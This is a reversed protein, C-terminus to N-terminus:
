QNLDRENSENHQSSESPGYHQSYPANSAHGPAEFWPGGAAEDEPWDSMPFPRRETNFTLFDLLEYHYRTLSSGLRLLQVNAAGTVLVLVFQVLVVVTQVIEAISYFLTFMLMFLGRRWIDRRESQAPMAESM